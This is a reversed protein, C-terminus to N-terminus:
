ISFTGSAMWRFWHVHRPVACDREERLQGNSEQDPDFGRGVLGPLSRQVRLRDLRESAALPLTMVTLKKDNSTSPLAM